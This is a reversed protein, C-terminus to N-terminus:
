SQRVQGLDSRKRGGRNANPSKFFSREAVKHEKPLILYTVLVGFLGFIWAYEGWVKLTSPAVNNSIILGIMALSAGTGVGVGWAPSFREIKKELPYHLYMAVILIITVLAGWLLNLGSYVDYRVLNLWYSGFCVLPVWASLIFRRFMEKM